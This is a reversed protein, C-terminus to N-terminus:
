RFLSLIQVINHSTGKIVIFKINYLYLKDLAHQTKIESCMVQPRHEGPLILTYLLLRVLMVSVNHIINDLNACFIYLANIFVKFSDGHM